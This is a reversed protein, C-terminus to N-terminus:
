AALRSPRHPAAPASGSDPTAAPATWLQNSAGTCSALTLQTANVDSPATICSNLTKLKIESKSTGGTWDQNPNGPTCPQLSVANGSDTVCDGNHVLQGTATQSFYDALDSLCTFAQIATGENLNGTDDACLASTGHSATTGDGQWIAGPVTVVATVNDQITFGNIVALAPVVAITSDKVTITCQNPVPSGVLNQLNLTTTTPQVISTVEFSGNFTTATGNVQCSGNYTVEIGGLLSFVASLFPTLIGGPNVDITFETPDNVTGSSTCNPLVAPIALAGMSYSCSTVVTPTAARAAGAGAAIGGFALLGSSVAIAAIRRIRRM